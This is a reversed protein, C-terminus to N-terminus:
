ETPHNACGQDKLMQRLRSGWWWLEPRPTESGLAYWFRLRCAPCQVWRVITADLIEYPQRAAHNSEARPRVDRNMKFRPESIQM